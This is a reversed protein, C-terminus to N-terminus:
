SQSQIELIEEEIYVFQEMSRRLDAECSAPEDVWRNFNDEGALWLMGVTRLKERHEFIIRMMKQQHILCQRMLELVYLQLEIEEEKTYTREAMKWEGTWARNMVIGTIIVRGTKPKTDLDPQDPLVLLPNILDILM